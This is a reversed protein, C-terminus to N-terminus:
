KAVLIMIVQMGEIRPGLEAKSIDSVESQVSQLLTMGLENHTVERGRFKLSVKVKDGEVIFNRIQKLKVQLDHKGITIRLKIEKIAVVRQKKKTNQLKKKIEYKYKGFDLIKCVPPDSQPAIEVLDLSVDEAKKLAVAIDVVGIMESNHDILRVQKASIERNSKPLHSKRPLSVIFFEKINIKLM